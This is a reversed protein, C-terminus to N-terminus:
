TNTEKNLPPIWPATFSRRQRRRALYDAVTECVWILTASTVGFFVSVVIAAIANNDM